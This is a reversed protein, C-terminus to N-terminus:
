AIQRYDALHLIQAPQGPLLRLKELEGALYRVSTHVYGRTVSSGGGAHGLMRSIADLSAGSEALLTAFTHRMAHWPHAYDAPCDATLLVRRVRRNETKRGMRHTSGVGPVPFVLGELTSPCKDQWTRLIPALDSHLPITRGKGSKPTTRFSHKIEICGLDFRVDSWCLGCLEGYRMGTHLATAVMPDSDPGLLRACQERTYFVELPTTRMREVKSCPNRCDIIEADIAWAFIRHLYALTLNVTSPKYKRRLADRYFIVDIKKVTAATMSALPFPRLRANVVPAVNRDIYQKRDKLRPPDYDRLFLAALESVTLKKARQEDETPEPMGLLGRTIRAEIEAVFRMAAAKTTQQSAKQKWKGDVDRYKCYWMPRDKTGRNLVYGM